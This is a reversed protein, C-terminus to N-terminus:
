EWFAADGTRRFLTLVFRGSDKGRVSRHFFAIRSPGDYGRHVRVEVSARGDRHAISVSVDKDDCEYDWERGPGGSEELDFYIRDGNEVRLTQNVGPSVASYRRGFACGSVIALLAVLIPLLLRATM